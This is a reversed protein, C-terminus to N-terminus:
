SDQFVWLWLSREHFSCLLYWGCEFIIFYSDWLQMPGVIQLHLNKSNNNYIRLIFEASHVFVYSYLVFIHTSGFFFTTPRFALPRTYVLSLLGGILVVMWIYFKLVQQNTRYITLTFYLITLWVLCFINVVCLQMPWCNTLNPTHNTTELIIRVFTMNYAITTHLM